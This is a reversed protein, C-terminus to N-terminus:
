DSSITQNDFTTQGGGERKRKENKVCISRDSKMYEIFIFLHLVVFAKSSLCHASNDGNSVDNGMVSSSARQGVM